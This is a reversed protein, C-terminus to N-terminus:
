PTGAVQWFVTAGAAGPTTGDVGWVNVTVTSGTIVVSCLAEAAAQVANGISCLGYLPTTLGHTVAGTGTIVESGMVMTTMGSFLGVTGTADPLTITRAATPNTPTLTTEYANAASGEWKLDGTNVWFANATDPENATSSVLLTGGFNPLTFTRDATPDTVTVSTEYDNATAGEFVLANSAGTVANAADAGNTALSSLMVTGAANPIVISRDATPDTVSVSTEYDDATAGEWVLANSAGTVSNTIATGNTALSSVMVAGTENPITVTRDATPDTVALTTEYDNATDGEFVISGAAPNVAITGSSDPFTFTRDATPDTIAFTTEYADATAGEFVPDAGFTVAGTLSSAGGVNLYNRVILATSTDVNAGAARSAQEPVPIDPVPLTIGLYSGVLAIIIAIATLIYTLQKKEM